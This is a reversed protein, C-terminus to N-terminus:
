DLLTQRARSQAKPALICYDFGHTTSQSQSTSFDPKPGRIKLSGTLAFRVRSVGFVFRMMLLHM